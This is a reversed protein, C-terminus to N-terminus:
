VNVNSSKMIMDESRKNKEHELTQNMEETIMVEDCIVKGPVYIENSAIVMTMEVVENTVTYEGENLKLEQQETM